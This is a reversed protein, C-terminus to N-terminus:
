MPRFNPSGLELTPCNPDLRRFVGSLGLREAMEDILLELHPHLRETSSGYLIRITDDYDTASFPELGPVPRMGIRELMADQRGATGAACIALGGSCGTIARVVRALAAAAATLRIGVGFDRSRARYYPDVIWRGIEAIHTRQTGLAALLDSFQTERLSREVLGPPGGPSPVYLRVCGVLTSGDYALIHFAHPDVPDADQFGGTHAEFSPRRGNDFLIRGRLSRVNELWDPLSADAEGPANAPPLKLRWTLPPPRVTSRGRMKRVSDETLRVCDDLFDSYACLASSGAAVLTSLSWPAQEILRTLLRANFETHAVDLSIHQTLFGLRSLIDFGLLDVCRATVLEGYKVPLKEIEYEIAVQAFPAEGVITDEHLRCYRATGDGPAQELLADADVLSSRHANWHDALMRLDAIMLEHHNAEARAHRRLTEAVERFGIHDCRAAARCIWSEVPQTIRVGLACFYVLFLECFHDDAVAELARVASSAAFRERAPAILREYDSLSVM